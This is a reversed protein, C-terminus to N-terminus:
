FDDDLDEGFDDDLDDDDFDDLDEFGDEDLDALEDDDFDDDLDDDLDLDDDFDSSGDLVADLFSPDNMLLLTQPSLSRTFPQCLCFRSASDRGVPFYPLLLSGICAGHTCKTIATTRDGRREM